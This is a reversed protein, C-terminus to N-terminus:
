RLGGGLGLQAPDTCDGVAVLTGVPPVRESIRRIFDFDNLDVIIIDPTARPFEPPSVQVFRLGCDVQWAVSWEDPLGVIWAVTDMKTRWAWAAGIISPGPSQMSYRAWVM